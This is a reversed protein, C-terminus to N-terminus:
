LDKVIYYYKGTLVKKARSKKCVKYICDQVATHRITDSIGTRLIDHIHVLTDLDVGCIYALFVSTTTIYKRKGGLTVTISSFVGANYLEM